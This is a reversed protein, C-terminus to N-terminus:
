GHRNLSKSPADNAKHPGGKRDTAQAIDPGGYFWWVPATEVLAVM